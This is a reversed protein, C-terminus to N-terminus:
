VGFVPNLTVSRYPLVIVEMDIDNSNHLTFVVKVHTNRPLSPLNPLPTIATFAPYEPTGGAFNVTLMYPQANGLSDVPVPSEPLYIYPTYKSPNIQAPLVGKDVSFTFDSTAVDAPSSYSTVFRGGFSNSSAQYKDPSYVTKNPLLYEGEAIGDISISEIYLNSPKLDPMGKLEFSFKVSARTVFLTAKQHFDAETVPKKVDLDFLETMPILSKATGSNDYLASGPQRTLQMDNLGAPFTSGASITNFNYPISEENAFLYVKKVEGSTLKFTMEDPLVPLQNSDMAIWRNAEVTGDPHVIIVRLTHMKEYDTAPLEFGITDNEEALPARTDGKPLADDLPRVNLTLYVFAGGEAGGPGPPTVPDDGHSCAGGLLSLAALAMGYITQKLKM